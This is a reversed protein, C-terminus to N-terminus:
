KQESFNICVMTIDDYQEANESFSLIDEEIEKLISSSTEKQSLNLKELLKEESYIEGDTNKSETVGDSYLFLINKDKLILSGPNFEAESTLGVLMNEEINLYECSTGNYFVPYTHGGNCYNVHGTETNLIGCFITSYMCTQNDLALTDNVNKLIENVSQKMLAFRKMLTKTTMMFLAASISKGSVDGIAFFLHTNDIFFYDYFDGSVIKSPKLYAHLDIHSSGKLEPINEPLSSKQISAALKIEEEIAKERSMSESLKEIYIKLDSTMLNFNDALEEIEDGTNLTIKQVLDGKGIYKTADKLKALPVTITKSLLSGIIFVIIILTIFVGLTIYNIRDYLSLINTRISDLYDVSKNSFLQVQNNLYDEPLVKVLTSDLSEIKSFLFYFEKGEITKKIVGPSLDSKIMSQITNVLIKNNSKLLERKVELFEKYYLEKSPGENAIVTGNNDVIFMYGPRHKEVEIIHLIDIIKSIRTINESGDLLKDIELEKEPILKEEEVEKNIYDSYVKVDEIIFKTIITDKLNRHAKSEFDYIEKISTYIIDIESVTTYYVIGSHGILCLLLVFVLIGLIKAKISLKLKKTKKTM